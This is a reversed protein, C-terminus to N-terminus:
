VMHKPTGSLVATKEPKTDITTEYNLYDRVTLPYDDGTVLIAAEDDSVKDAAAANKLGGMGSNNATTESAADSSASSSCGASLLM